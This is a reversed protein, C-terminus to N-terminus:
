KENNLWKILEEANKFYLGIKKYEKKNHISKYLERNIFYTSIKYSCNWKIKYILTKKM